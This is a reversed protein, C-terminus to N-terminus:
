SVTAGNDLPVYTVYWLIVGAGANASTTAEIVGPAVVFATSSWVAKGASSGVVLAGAVGSSAQVGIFTGKEASTVATATAIGATAETGVTPKSGLAVTTATSGILTTVQGFMSTILVNGTGVTFLTQTTASGPLTWSKTVQTGFNLARLQYGQILISM